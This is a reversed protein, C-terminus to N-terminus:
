EHWGRITVSLPVGTLVAGNRFRLKATNDEISMLTPQEGQTYARSLPIPKGIFTSVHDVDKQYEADLDFEKVLRGRKLTMQSSWKQPQLCADSRLM